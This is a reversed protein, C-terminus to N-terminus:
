GPSRSVFRLTTRRLPRISASGPIIGTKENTAARRAFRMMDDIGEPRGRACDLVGGLGSRSDGRCQLVEGYSEGRQPKDRNMMIVGKNAPVIPDYTYFM